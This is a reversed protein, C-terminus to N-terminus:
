WLASAVMPVVVLGAVYVVFLVLLFLGSRRHIRGTRVALGIVAAFFIGLWSYSYSQTFYDLKLPSVMGAAGVVIFLNLTNAGIINGLSLDPVGKRASSIGTVLEPLSTGIAVLSLGIIASPVGLAVALDQGNDVLLWSGAVILLLGFGFRLVARLFGDFDGPDESYPTAQQRRIGFYDWALYFFGGVLLVLAPTRTLTRNATFIVVLVAAAVMWIVRRLFDLRDVRIPTLLAVTGVILGVNCISSGVANGLAIGTDGASSALTSVVLEPMTTAVSVLTGGIVFRPVNLLRGIDLSSDVFLDGGKALLALALLIFLFGYFVTYGGILLASM